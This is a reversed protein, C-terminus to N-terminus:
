LLVSNYKTVFDNSFTKDEITDAKKPHSYKVFLRYATRVAIKKLKWYINHTRSEIENTEECKSELEDPIKMDIIQKLFLVWPDM